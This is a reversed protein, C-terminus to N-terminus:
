RRWFSPFLLVLVTFLELRGMIMLFTLFLKAAQPLHAFNDTPGVSGVGPGINSLCAIAAGAASELDLGFGAMVITGFAFTGMYLAFFSLIGQIVEDPVPKGDLKVVKVARPHIYRFIQHYAHRTLLRVRVVKMGGGTSGASGGIFMLVILLVQSLYPWLEYDDTAYGTTTGLSVAQFAAHRFTEEISEYRGVNFLALISTGLVMITLYTRFESSRGYRRLSGALAFHHLAFNVGALFMFAVITWQIFPSAFAAISEDRTSFGGTALTTFAHNVADFPSMGGLTLLLVEALTLAFYAKWLSKATDQIRPSLRDATPGPVEARFLQMGGIGLFPLIAVTLVIIGMGGLWQTMSRWLLIGQPVADLGEFVTAGTTTFGSVSEFFADVPSDTVGSLLYPLAGVLGFTVWGLSVIAFGERHGIDADSRLLYWALSGAVLGIALSGFLAPASGDGYGLGVLGPIALVLSLFVTLGGLIHLTLRWHM